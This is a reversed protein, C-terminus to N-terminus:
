SLAFAFTGNPQSASLQQSSNIGEQDNQFTDSQKSKGRQSTKTVSSRQRKGTKNGKSATDAAAAAAAVPAVAVANEQRLNDMLQQENVDSAGISSDISEQNEFKNEPGTSESGTGKGRSAM